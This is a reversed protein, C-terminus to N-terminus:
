VASTQQSVIQGIKDSVKTLGDFGPLTQIRRSVNNDIWDMGNEGSFLTAITYDSEKKPKAGSGVPTWFHKILFRSLKRSIESKELEIRAVSRYFTTHASEERVIGRLIESLVPHDALEILRRYGQTTSMEHIAGFAMHTATFRKGVLNTLTTILYNTVTYSTSVSSLVQKQWKDETPIGAENLFRNLLEGHTQEEASWREMFKSIIPDKGTPTRRLEDYYVDTLTEVDRMYLLVPIFKEDLPYDKVSKWDVAGIFQPTLTRPQKEYWDLVDRNTEFTM